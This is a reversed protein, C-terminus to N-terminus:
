LKFSGSPCGADAASERYLMRMQRQSPRHYKYVHLIVKTRHGAGQLDKFEVCIEQMGQTELTRHMQFWVVHLIYM